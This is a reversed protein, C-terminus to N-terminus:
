VLSLNSKLVIDCYSPTIGLRLLRYKSVCDGSILSHSSCYMFSHFARDAVPFPKFFLAEGDENRSFVNHIDRLHIHRRGKFKNGAQAADQALALHYNRFTDNFFYFFLSWNM